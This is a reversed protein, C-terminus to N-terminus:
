QAVGGELILELKKRGGGEDYSTVGFEECRAAFDDVLVGLDNSFRFPKGSIDAKRRLLHHDRLVILDIPM